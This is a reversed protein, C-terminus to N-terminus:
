EIKSNIKELFVPGDFKLFEGVQLTSAELAHKGHTKELVQLDTIGVIKGVYTEDAMSLLTKSVLAPRQSNAITSLGAHRGVTLYRQVTHPLSYNPFFFQAEEFVVLTKNSTNLNKTYLYHLISSTTDIIEDMEADFEFRVVVNKRQYKKDFAQFAQFSKVFVGPYENAYDFVVM